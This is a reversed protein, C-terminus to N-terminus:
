LLSTFDRGRDGFSILRQSKIECASNKCAFRTCNIEKFDILFVNRHESPFVSLSEHQPLAAVRAWETEDVESVFFMMLQPDTQCLQHLHDSHFFHYQMRFDCQTLGFRCRRPVDYKM